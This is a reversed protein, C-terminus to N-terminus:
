IKRTGRGQGRNVGRWPLTVHRRLAPNLRVFMSGNAYFVRALVADGLMVVPEGSDVLHELQMAVHDPSSDPSIVPAGHTDPTSVPPEQPFRSPKIYGIRRMLAFSTM